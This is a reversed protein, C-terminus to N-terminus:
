KTDQSIELDPEGIPILTADNIHSFSTRNNFTGDFTLTTGEPLDVSEIQDIHIESLLRIHTDMRIIQDDGDLYIRLTAVSEDFINEFIAESIDNEMMSASPTLLETIITHDFIMNIVEVSEDDVIATELAVDVLGTLLLERNRLASVHDSLYSNLQLPALGQWETPDDVIVWGDPIPPLDAKNGAYAANVYLVNDVFRVESELMYEEGQNVTVTIQSRIEPTGSQIITSIEERNENSELFEPLGNSSVVILQNQQSEETQVYATYESQKEVAEFYRDVLKIQPTSLGDDQATVDSQIHILDVLMVMGLLGLFYAWNRM